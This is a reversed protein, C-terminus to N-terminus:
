GCYSERTIVSRKGVTIDAVRQERIGFRIGNGTGSYYYYNRSLDDPSPYTLGWPYLARLARESMGVRAGSSTALRPSETQVLAVSGREIYVISVDSLRSRWCVGHREKLLHGIQRQTIGVRIGLMGNTTIVRGSPVPTNVTAPAAAAVWPKFAFPNLTPSRGSALAKAAVAANVEDQSYTQETSSGCGTLAPTGALLVLANLIHFANKM